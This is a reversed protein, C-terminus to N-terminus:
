QMIYYLNYENERSRAYRSARLNDFAIDLHRRERIETINFEKVKEYLRDILGERAPDELPLRSAKLYLVSLSEKEVYWKQKPTKAALLAKEFLEEAERVLEDTLMEADSFLHITLSTGEVAELLLEVYRKMYPFAADGYVGRLFEDIIAVSKQDPDWLLQAALYCELDALASTEGYAFNGQQM